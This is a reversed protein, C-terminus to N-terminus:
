LGKASFLDNSGKPQLKGRLLLDVTELLCKGGQVGSGAARQELSTGPAEAALPHQLGLDSPRFGSCRRKTYM